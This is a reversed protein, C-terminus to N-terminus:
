PQKPFLPPAHYVSLMLFFPKQPLLMLLARNRKKINRDSCSKLSDPVEGPMREVMSPSFVADM